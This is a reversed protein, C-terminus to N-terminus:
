GLYFAGCFSQRKKKGIDVFYFMLGLVNDDCGVNAYPLLNLCYRLSDATRVTSRIYCV